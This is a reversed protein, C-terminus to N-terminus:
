HTGQSKLTAMSAAILRGFEEISDLEFEDSEIEELFEVLLDYTVEADITPMAAKFLLTLLYSFDAVAASPHHYDEM